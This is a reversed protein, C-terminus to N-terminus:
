IDFCEDGLCLYNSGNTAPTTTTTRTLDEETLSAVEQEEEELRNNIDELSIAQNDLEKQILEIEEIEVEIMRLMEAVPTECRRYSLECRKAGAEKGIVAAIDFELSDKGIDLESANGFVTEHDSLEQGNSRMANLECVLRKSCDDQDKYVMDNQWIKDDHAITVNAAIDSIKGM